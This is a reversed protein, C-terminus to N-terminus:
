AENPTTETLEKEIAVTMSYKAKIAKLDGGSALYEKAKNFPETGKKLPIKTAAKAVAGNSKGHDNTADSDATDDILFLNGLAYKKAYSSASGFKQPMNMGRQEFDIGVVSNAFTEEKGDTLTATSYMVTTDGIVTLDETIILTCDHKKLIPKLAELISESNRFYYKGFSNYSTKKVKLETQIASLKENITKQKEAM